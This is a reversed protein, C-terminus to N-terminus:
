VVYLDVLRRWEFINFIQKKLKKLISLYKEFLWLANEM